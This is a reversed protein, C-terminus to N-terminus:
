AFPARPRRVTPHSNQVPAAQPRAIREHPLAAGDNPLLEVLRRVRQSDIKGNRGGRCAAGRVALLDPALPLLSSLTESTLSGGLVVLMGARRAALALSALEAMPLHATLPGSTKDYTDLLLAGCGYGAACQLVDRPRPSEANQYDAYAAAVPVVGSPLMDFLRRWREPWDAVRACGALGVKAFDLQAADIRLGDNEAWGDADQCDTLLEGLAASLAVHDGIALRVERWVRPDARGLPGHAPEKVDIVSAGGALAQIAEEASRVSVLLGTM